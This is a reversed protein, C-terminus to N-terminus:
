HLHDQHAKKKNKSKFRCKQEKVIKNKEYKNRIYEVKNDEM